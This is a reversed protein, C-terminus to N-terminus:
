APMFEAMDRLQPLAAGNRDGLDFADIDPVDTIVTRDRDAAVMGGAVGVGLRDIGHTTHGNLSM